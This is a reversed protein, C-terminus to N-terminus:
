EYKISIKDDLNKLQSIQYTKEGDDKTVIVEFGLEEYKNKVLINKATPIYKATFNDGNALTLVSHLFYDEIKRGIVRCSMLFTDIEYNKADTKKLIAVAVIGYNGFRDEVKGGCILYDSNSAMNRVEQETYRKTTMNFQNTKQTLQSIRAFNNENAKEVM